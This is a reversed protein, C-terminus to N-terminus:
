GRANLAGSPPTGMPIGPFLKTRLFSSDHAVLCHLCNSSQATEICYWRTVSLCVPLYVSPCVDLRYWYRACYSQRVSFNYICNNVASKKNSPTYRLLPISDVLHFSVNLVGSLRRCAASSWESATICLCQFVYWQNRYVCVPLCVRKFLTNTKTHGQLSPGGLAKCQVTRRYTQWVDVRLENRIFILLPFSLNTKVIKLDFTLVTSIEQLYKLSTFSYLIVDRHYALRHGVFM